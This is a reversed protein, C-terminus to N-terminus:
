EFIKLIDAANKKIDKNEFQLKEIYQKHIIIYYNFEM